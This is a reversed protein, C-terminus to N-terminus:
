PCYKMFTIACKFYGLLAVADAQKPHPHVAFIMKLQYGIISFVNALFLYILGAIWMMVNM